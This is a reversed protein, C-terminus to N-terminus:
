PIVIPTLCEFKTEMRFHSAVVHREAHFIDMPYTQGVTLGQQDFSVLKNEAIHIGGLDIVRQNNVFVFVDDDGTFTFTEGGRYIFTTHIETSFSYNHTQGQNGFGQNDIPFFAQNNFVMSGSADPTLPLQIEFRMNVGDTDRYWQNFSDAGSVTLTAGAPAYVPKKDSGLTTDVLGLDDGYHGVGPEFDPHKPEGNPGVWGRFDRIVAIVYNPCDGGAGGAGTSGTSGAGSGHTSLDIGGSPNPGNAGSGGVLSSGLPVPGSCALLTSAAGMAFAILWTRHLRSPDQRTM